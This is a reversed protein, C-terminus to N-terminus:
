EVFRQFRHEVNCFLPDFACFISTFNASIGHLEFQRDVGEPLHVVRLAQDWVGSGKPEPTKKHRGNSALETDDRAHLRTRMARSHLALRLPCRLAGLLVLGSNLEGTIVPDSNLEGTNAPNWCELGTGVRSSDSQFRQFRISNPSIQRPVLFNWNRLFKVRIGINCHVIPIKYTSSKYPSFRTIWLFIGSNWNRSPYPHPKSHM